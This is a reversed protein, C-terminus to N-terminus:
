SDTKITIEVVRDNQQFSCFHIFYGGFIIGAKAASVRFQSQIYKPGFVTFGAIMLADGVGALTM